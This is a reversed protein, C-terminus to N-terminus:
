DEAAESVTDIRAAGLGALGKPDLGAVADLLATRYSEPGNYTGEEAAQEAAIGYVVTGAIAARLPQESMAGAFVSVSGGLMCGSGVFEGLMRDGATVQYAVNETGVVDAAGSAVVVAGTQRAVVMATAEITEYDGVAEVGRLAAERDALASIEGYNGKIVSVDIDQLLHDVLRDRTPTTGVAVPDLVVPVDAGNAAAAAARMTEAGEPSVNGTNLLLADATQVMAAVERRDDSMVPLGGLYQIVNAVNNITVRNTIAHVLPTRDHVQKVAAQLDTQIM